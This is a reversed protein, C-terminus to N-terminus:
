IIAYKKIREIVTKDYQKEITMKKISFFMRLPSPGKLYFFHYASWFNRKHYDDKIIETLHSVNADVFNWDYEHCLKSVKKIFLYCEVIRTVILAIILTLVIM